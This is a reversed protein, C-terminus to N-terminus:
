TSAIAADSAAPGAPAREEDRLDGERRRDDVAQAGVEGTRTAITWEPSPSPSRASSHRRIRAPSTSRTTPVRSAAARAARRRRGSRRRRPARGRRCSRGCAASGPARRPARAPGAPPRPPRARCRSATPRSRPGPALRATDARRGGSARRRCPAAATSPRRGGRPARPRCGRAATRRARRRARRGEVGAAPSRAIRTM